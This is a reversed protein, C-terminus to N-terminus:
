GPEFYTDEIIGSGVLQDLEPSAALVRALADRTEEDYHAEDAIRWAMEEAWEQPSRGNIADLAVGQTSNNLLRCIRHARTTHPETQGEFTSCVAWEALEDRVVCTSGDFISVSFTPM